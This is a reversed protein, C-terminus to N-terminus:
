PQSRYMATVGSAEGPTAKMLRNELDNFDNIGYHRRLAAEYGGELGDRVFRVFAQPGGKQASLFEVLAVSQVYFPTVQRKEPYGRSGMLKALPLLEHRSRHISLNKLYRDIKARPESLIAIGEDAWCPVDHRGFRGALVAHTTEHPLVHTLMDTVDCHLEIKRLMVREPNGPETLFKSHGPSAV